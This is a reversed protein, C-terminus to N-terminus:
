DGSGSAQNRLHVTTAYMRRQRNRTAKSFNTETLRVGKDASAHMDSYEKGFMDFILDDTSAPIRTNNTGRVLVAIQVTAIKKWHTKANGVAISVGQPITTADLANVGTASVMQNPLGDDDTDVGYLVQFGEVGRVIADAKWSSNGLYKCYLQPEGLSDEAVYFLSGSRQQDAVPFGACNVVTGEPAGFFQVSLVDSGNVPAAVPSAMWPADSKLRHADLGEISPNMEPKVIAPAEQRDWNVYAAQRIARTLIEMAYRGTDDMRAEDDQALYGSKTSLLLATAAMVVLLGLAISIMLEILTLGNERVLSRSISASERLM